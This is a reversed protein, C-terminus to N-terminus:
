CFDAACEPFIRNLRAIFPAIKDSHITAYNIVLVGTRKTFESSCYDSYLQLSLAERVGAKRIQDDDLETQVTLLIHTGADFENITSIRQLPSVAIASLLKKRIDNYHRKLRNIHRNFYGQAIFQALTYQEFGCVACSYFGLNRWFRAMLEEPLVM